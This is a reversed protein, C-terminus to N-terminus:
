KRIVKSITSYLETPNIEELNYVRKYYNIL